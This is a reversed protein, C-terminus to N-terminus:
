LSRRTIEKNNDSKQRTVIIWAIGKKRLIEVDATKDFHIMDAIMKPSIFHSRMLLLKEVLAILKVFINNIDPEEIILKGGLALLRWMESLTKGQNEVHHLADVMIIRDFSGNNFPLFESQSNVVAIRKEQAELLMKEATDAIMVKNTITQFLAAVRGTGGGVDLLVHDKRVEALEVIEQNERRGFIRDYIPSILNFHNLNSV